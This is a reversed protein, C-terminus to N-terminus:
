SGNYSAQIPNPIAADNRHCRFLFNYNEYGNLLMERFKFFRMLFNSSVNPPSLSVPLASSALVDAKLREFDLDSLLPEEPAAGMLVQNPVQRQQERKEQELLEELLM